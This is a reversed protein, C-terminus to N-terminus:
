ARSRKRRDKEPHQRYFEEKDKYMNEDARQMAHCINYEGVCYSSGVAFRVDETNETLARLQTIQQQIVEETVDPMFVVFEDGGARYIEYDGFAIKLLGAARTLLRDGADHGEDDNVTKLGNLDAFVIGLSDPLKETGSVLKDVRDNMANRNCVQTLGDVTSRVELRTILQHNQIVAALLFASLELTIKIQM